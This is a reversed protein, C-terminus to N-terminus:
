QTTGKGAEPFIARWTNEKTGSLDNCIKVKKKVRNTNSKGHLPEKGHKKQYKEKTQIWELDEVQKLV